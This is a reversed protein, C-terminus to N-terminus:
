KDDDEAAIVDILEIEFVLLSNPPIGPRGQPGYALESPIWFRYKSGVPMLQVGETWGKIVGNLPFVSPEGRDYSSDFTKGNLFTGKYHAKVSDKATPRKGEGMKVVQYQLGSKTSKVGEEKANKAMFEKTAKEANAQTEKQLNEVAERFEEPSQSSEKGAFADRIGRVILELDLEFPQSKLQGGINMGIGYSVRERDNKLEVSEEKGEEKKEAKKEAQKAAPKEEPEDGRSSLPVSGILMVLLGVVVLCPKRM